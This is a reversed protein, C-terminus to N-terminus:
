KGPPKLFPVGKRDPKETKPSLMKELVAELGEEPRYAPYAAISGGPSVLMELPLGWAQLARLLEDHLGVTATVWPYSAKTLFDNDKLTDRSTFLAVIQMKGHYREYLPRLAELSALCSICGPRAFVIYVPTRAMDRLNMTDGRITVFDVSPVETGPKLRTYKEYLAGAMERHKAIVSGDRIQRLFQLIQRSPYLPASYMVKLAVLLSLERLPEARINLINALTDGLSSFHDAKNAAGVLRRHDLPPHATPLERVIRKELYDEFWSFFYPNEYEPEVEPLSSIGEPLRSRFFWGPSIFRFLGAAVTDKGSRLMLSLSDVLSDLRTEDEPTILRHTLTGLWESYKWEMLALLSDTRFTGIIQIRDAWGAHELFPNGNEAPHFGGADLLLTDGPHLFVTERYFATEIIVPAHSDLYFRLRFTGDPEITDVAAISENRSLYDSFTLAWIRSGAIRPATGTVFVNVPTQAQLGQLGPFVCLVFLSLLFFRIKQMTVFRLIAGMRYM